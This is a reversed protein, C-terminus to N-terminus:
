GTTRRCQHASGASLEITEEDVSEPKINSVQMLAILGLRQTQKLAKLGFYAIARNEGKLSVLDAITGIAALELFETPCEGLLAHAIKM